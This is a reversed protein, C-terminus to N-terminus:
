KRKLVKKLYHGTHSHPSNAVDEPTGKAVIKGGKFNESRVVKDLPGFIVVENLFDANTAQSTNETVPTQRGHPGSLIRIGLYVLALAIALKVVLDGLLISLGFIIILIGIIRRTM